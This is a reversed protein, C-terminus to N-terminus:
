EHAVRPRMTQTLSYYRELFHGTSDGPEAVMRLGLLRASSLFCALRLRVRHVCTFKQQRRTIVLVDSRLPEPMDGSVINGRTPELLCVHQLLSVLMRRPLLFCRRGDCRLWASRPLRSSTQENATPLRALAVLEEAPWSSGLLSRRQASLCRSSMVPRIPGRQRMQM